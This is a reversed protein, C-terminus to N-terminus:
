FFNDKARSSRVGNDVESGDYYDKLMEDITNIDDQLDADMSIVVDAHEKATMLGAVLANQHGRNRSLNIGSFLKNEDNLECIIDWTKDKSGDNVFLVKSDKSITKDKILENLKVNLRKSTERLVEEENYCPIVVYLTKNKM